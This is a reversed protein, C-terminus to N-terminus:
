VNQVGLHMRYGLVSQPSYAKLRRFYHKRKSWFGNNFKVYEVGTSSQSGIWREKDIVIGIHNVFGGTAPFIVIDGPKAIDVTEFLNSDIYGTVSTQFHARKDPFLNGLVFAVFGSCDFGELTKGGWKYKRDDVLQHIRMAEYVVGQGSNELFQDSM